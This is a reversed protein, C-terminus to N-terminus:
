KGYKRKKYTTFEDKLQEFGKKTIHMCSEQDVVVIHFIDESFEKGCNACPSVEIQELGGRELKAFVFASIAPSIKIKKEADQM